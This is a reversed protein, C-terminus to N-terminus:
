PGLPTTPPHAHNSSCPVGTVGVKSCTRKASAHDAAGRVVERGPVAGGGEKRDDELRGEGEEETDDEIPTGREYSVAWWGLVAM